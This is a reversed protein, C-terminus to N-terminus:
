LYPIGLDTKGAIYNEHINKANGPGDLFFTFKHQSIIYDCKWLFM